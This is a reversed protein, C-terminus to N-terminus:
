SKQRNMRIVRKVTRQRQIINPFKISSLLKDPTIVSQKPSPSYIKLLQKFDNSIVRNGNKTFSHSRLSCGSKTRIGERSAPSKKSEKDLSNFSKQNSQRDRQRKIILLRQYLDNYEFQVGYKDEPENNQINKYPHISYDM